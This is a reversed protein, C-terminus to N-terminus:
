VFMKIMFNNFEKLLLLMMKKSKILKNKLLLVMILLLKATNKNAIEQTAMATNKNSTNSSLFWGKCKTRKSTKEAMPVTPIPMPMVGSHFGQHLSTSIIVMNMPLIPMKVKPMDKKLLFTSM